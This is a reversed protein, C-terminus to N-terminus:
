KSTPKDGAAPKTPPAAPAPGPAPAPARSVGDGAVQTWLSPVSPELSGNSALRFVRELDSKRLTSQNQDQVVVQEVVRMEQEKFVPTATLRYKAVGPLGGFPRYDVRDLPLSAAKTLRGARLMYVNLSTECPQGPQAEACGEDTATVLLRSGMRELSLRTTKLKGRHTGTGYVEAYGERSRVLALPGASSQDAFQFTRLWVIRFGDPGPTVVAHDAKAPLSGTRPGEAQLLDAESFAARGACDNSGSDVTASGADFGPLVMEWYDEPSVKSVGSTSRELPQVCIPVPITRRARDEL